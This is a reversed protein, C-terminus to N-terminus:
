VNSAGSDKASTDETTWNCWKDKMKAKFREQEEQSMGSWKEKWYPKWSGHKSHGGKGGIGSFLIKSLVLLGLAQWYTLVPGNFLVPVLWNWLLQTGLVFVGALVVGLVGIAIAKGIWRGSKM